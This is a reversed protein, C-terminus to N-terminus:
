SMDRTTEGYGYLNKMDYAEDEKFWYKIKMECLVFLSISECPPINM